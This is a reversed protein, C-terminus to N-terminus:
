NEEPSLDDAKDAGIEDVLEQWAKIVFGEGGETRSIMARTLIVAISVAIALLLVYELVIQGAQSQRSAQKHIGKVLPCRDFAKETMRNVRIGDRTMWRPKKGAEPM